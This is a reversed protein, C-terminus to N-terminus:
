NLPTLKQVTQVRNKGNQKALYVGEDAVRILDTYTEMNDRREAVGVSISGRWPEFATPVLMHSVQKRVADAVHLGGELGTDPCIVFFEDGGLRCVIDDSRFYHKLAQALETLVIDGAEHGCTDNVQKFYDADIMICVLPLDKADEDKWLKKLTKIASRRNPLQTLSDTLSLAELQKNANSLQKTREDVKEELVLNLKLLERNRESVQSFLANLAELLPETSANAQKEQEEYAAKPSMGSQIAAVQKSMNQDIGLIHYALWHILFDLLQEAARKNEENIFSQMSIIDSMFARHVQIHKQLHEPYIGVERMLNEEEKFHFEAYRSLDFLAVQIDTLSISNQALLEGYKNIFGVLYQHQEDVQEIGTEFYTDWRFSNM